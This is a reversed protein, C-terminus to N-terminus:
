GAAAPLRGSRPSIAGVVHLAGRMAGRPRQQSHCESVRLTASQRSHRRSERTHCEHARQQTHSRAFALPQTEPADPRSHLDLATGTANASGGVCRRSTRPPRRPPAAPPPPPSSRRPPRRPPSPPPQLPPSSPRWSAARAAAPPPLPLHTTALMADYPTQNEVGCANQPNQCRSRPMAHPCRIRPMAYRDRELSRVDVFYGPIRVHANEIGASAAGFPSRILAKVRQCDSM